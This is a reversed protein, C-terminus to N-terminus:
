SQTSPAEAHSEAPIEEGAAAQEYAAQDTASWGPALDGAALSLEATDATEAEASKQREEDDRKRDQIEDWVLAFEPGCDSKAALSALRQVEAATCEALFGEAMLRSYGNCRILVSVAAKLIQENM